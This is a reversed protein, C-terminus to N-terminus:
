VAPRGPTIDASLGFSFGIALISAVMLILRSPTIWAGPRLSSSVRSPNSRPPQATGYPSSTIICFIPSPM